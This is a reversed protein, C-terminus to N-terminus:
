FYLEPNGVTLQFIFFTIIWQYNYKIQVLLESHITIQSNHTCFNHCLVVMFNTKDLYNKDINYKLLNTSNNFKNHWKSCHTTFSIKHLNYNLTHRTYHERYKTSEAELLVIPTWNLKSKCLITGLLERIVSVNIKILM